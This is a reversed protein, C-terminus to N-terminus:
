DNRAHGWFSALIGQRDMVVEHVQSPSVDGFEWLAAAQEKTEALVLHTYFYDEWKTPDGSFQNCVFLKLNTTNEPM